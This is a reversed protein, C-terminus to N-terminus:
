KQGHKAERAMAKAAARAVKRVQKKIPNQVLVQWFTPRKGNWSQWRLPKYQSFARVAMTLGRRASGVRLSERGRGTDVGWQTFAFDVQGQVELEIQDNAAQVGQQEFRALVRDLAQTEVSM